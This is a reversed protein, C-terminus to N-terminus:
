PTTLSVPGHLVLESVDGIAVESKEAESEIVLMEGSKGVRAGPTQVYLPLATGASPNLPRPAAGKRFFALEDPLCIGALSCKVCTPSDVLPPPIRGAAAALRLEAIAMRTAARLEEDLVVRVRERSGAFWIAGEGVRYGADELILAQACVQVREPLYAGE